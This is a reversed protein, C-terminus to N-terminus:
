LHSSSSFTVIDIRPPCGDGIQLEEMVTEFEM